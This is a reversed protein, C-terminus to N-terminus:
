CGVVRGRVEAEIRRIADELMAIFEDGPIGDAVLADCAEEADAGIESILPFGYTGGLGALGHFHRHLETLTTRSSRDGDLRALLTRMKDLRDLTSARFQQALEAMLEENM